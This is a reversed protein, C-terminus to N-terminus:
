APGAVFMLLFVPQTSEMPRKTLAASRALLLTQRTRLAVWVNLLMPSWVTPPIGVRCLWATMPRKRLGEAWAPSEKLSVLPCRDVLSRETFLEAEEIIPFLDRVLATRATLVTPMLTNM